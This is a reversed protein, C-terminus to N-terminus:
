SGFTLRGHCHKYKKGSGCPCSENRGPHKVAPPRSMDFNPRQLGGAAKSPRSRRRSDGMIQDRAKRLFDIAPDLTPRATLLPQDFIENLASRSKNVLAVHEVFADLSSFNIRNIMAKPNFDSSYWNDSYYLPVCGGVWAHFPKETYYGPFISNEFCLNFRYRRLLEYKSSRLPRNAVNGYV